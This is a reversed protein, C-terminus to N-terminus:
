NKELSFELYEQLVALEKESLDYISKFSSQESFELDITHQTLKHDQLVDTEKESFIDAYNELYQSLWTPEEVTVEFLIMTESEAIHWSTIILAECSSLLVIM